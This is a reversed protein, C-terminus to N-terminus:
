RILFGYAVMAVCALMAWLLHVLDEDVTGHGGIRL